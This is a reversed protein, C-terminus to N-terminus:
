FKVVPKGSIKLTFDISYDSYIKVNRSDPTNIMFSIIIKDATHAKDIFDKTFSVTSETNTKSTVIGNSGITGSKILSPVDITSKIINKECLSLSASVDFPLGNQVSIGLQVLGLDVDSELDKLFNDTTDSFQFNNFSMQLPIEIEPEVIIRSDGFLYNNRLHEPDGAPNMIFSGQYEMKGPLLSVLQSISSNDKNIELSGTADHHAPVDPVAITINNLDLVVSQNDRTGTAQFNFKAPIAFSNTYNIRLRPDTITFQGKISNLIKDIGVDLVKGFSETKQGFYGKLYDFQPNNLDIRVKIQDSSNFDIYSNNSTVQISYNVPIRNYSQKVDKSLDIITNSATLSGNILQNPVINITQSYVVSNRIIGPFTLNLTAYLPLSSNTQWNLQGGNLKVQQLEIGDGPDISVTDTSEPDSVVQSPIIIRGSKVKLNRGKAMFTVFSNDLDILVPSSNGPSGSFIIAGTLVNTLTKGTLDVAITKTEGPQVGPLTLPGAVPGFSNSLNISINNLPATLNNTVSIDLFGSSFTASQLNTFTSFASIPMSVSPFQPFQHPSGNDLSVFTSRLSPSFSRSIQDLSMSLTGQFPDIVVDGLTYSDTFSIMSETNYFDNIGKNFVSDSKFILRVFKDSDYIVTDINKLAESMVINGKFVPLILSPSLQKMDSLKDMEYTQKICGCLIFLGSVM